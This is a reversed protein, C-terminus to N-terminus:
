TPLSPPISGFVSDLEAIEGARKWEAMGQKWVLTERTFRREMAMQTLATM